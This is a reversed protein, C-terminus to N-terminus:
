SKFVIFLENSILFWVSQIFFEQRLLSLNSNVTHKSQRWALWRRRHSGPLFWFIIEVTIKLTAIKHRWLRSKLTLYFAVSDVATSFLSAISNLFKLYIEVLVSKFLNQSLAKLYVQKLNTKSDIARVIQRAALCCWNRQKKHCTWFYLSNKLARILAKIIYNTHLTALFWARLPLNCLLLM